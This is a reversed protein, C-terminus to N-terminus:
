FCCYRKKEEIKENEQNGNNKIKFSNTLEEDQFQSIVDNVQNM